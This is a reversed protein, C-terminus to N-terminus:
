GCGGVVVRSDVISWGVDVSFVTFFDLASVGIKQFFERIIGQWRCVNFFCYSSNAFQFVAGELVAATSETCKTSDFSIRKRPTGTRYSWDAVLASVMLTYVRGDLCCCM